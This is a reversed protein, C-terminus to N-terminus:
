VELRREYEVVEGTEIYRKLLRLYMAWCYCSTRFHANASPWGTHHFQVLTGAGEPRLQFGVRSGKWDDDSNLIEWEVLDTPQYRRMIATWDYTPGFYLRYRNGPGPSGESAKTWWAALGASSCIVEFVRQPPAAIPFDHCIEPV